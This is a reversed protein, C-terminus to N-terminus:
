IMLEHCKDLVPRCICSKIRKIHPKKKKLWLNMFWKGHLYIIPSNLYCTKVVFTWKHPQLYNKREKKFIWDVTLM